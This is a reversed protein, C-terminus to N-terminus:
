HTYGCSIQSRAEFEVRVDGVDIAGVHFRALRWSPVPNFEALHLDVLSADVTLAGTDATECEVHGFQTGHNASILEFSVRDGAQTSPSWTVHLSQGPVLAFTKCALDSVVPEVGLTSLSFAPLDTGGAAVATRTAGAAFVDTPTYSPDPVQGPHAPDECYGGYYQYTGSLVVPLACKTELGTLAIDGAWLQPLGEVCVNDSGCFGPWACFPDCQGPTDPKVFRCDGVRVRTAQPMEDAPPNSVSVFAFGTSQVAASESVHIVFAPAKDALLLDSLVDTGPEQAPDPAPDAVVDQVLDVPVADMGADDTGGPGVEACGIAAIVGAVVWAVGRRM